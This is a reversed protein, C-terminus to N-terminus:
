LRIGGKEIMKRVHWIIRRIAHDTWCKDSIYLKDTTADIIFIGERVVILGWNIVATDDIYLAKYRKTFNYFEKISYVECSLDVDRESELEYLVREYLKRRKM